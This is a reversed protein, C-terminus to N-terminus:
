NKFTNKRKIAQNETLHTTKWKRLNRMSISELAIATDNHAKGPLNHGNTMLAMKLAGARVENMPNSPAKSKYTGFLSELIDSSAHWCPEGAQPLKGREELLYDVIKKRHNQPICQPANQCIKICKAVTNNSLGENKLIKVISENLQFAAEFEDIFDKHDKLWGYTDQEKAPLGAMAELMKVAWKVVGSLNIFRAVTRQKPPILYATDTMYVQYRVKTVAEIWGKFRADEKYTQEMFKCMEHGCDCVRTAGSEKIAKKLNVGGDCVVYEAKSGMKQQVEDLFDKVEGWKWSSRVSFGLLWVEEMRVGEKNDKNPRIGLAVMMRATGFSMSEDLIIAYAGEHIASGAGEYRYLGMKEVWNEISSKSPLGGLNIGLELEICLLVRRVGRYSCGGFVLLGICLSVMGTGYGHGKIEKGLFNSRQRLVKLSRLHRKQEGRLFKVKSRQHRRSLLLSKNRQKLRRNEQRLLQLQLSLQKIKAESQRKSKEM